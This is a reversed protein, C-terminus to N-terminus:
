CRHWRGWCHRGSGRAEEGADRSDDEGGGEEGAVVAAVHHRRRVVDVGRGAAGGSGDVAVVRGRLGGAAVDALRGRSDWSCGRIRREHRSNDFNHWTDAWQLLVVLVVVRGDKPVVDPGDRPVVHLVGVVPDHAEEVHVHESGHGLLRGIRDLPQLPLRQTDIDERVSNSCVAAAAPPPAATDHATDV